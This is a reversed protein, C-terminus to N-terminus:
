LYKDLRALTKRQNRKMNSAIKNIIKNGALFWERENRLEEFKL